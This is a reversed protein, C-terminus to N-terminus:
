RYMEEPTMIEPIDSKHVVPSRNKRYEYIAARIEQIRENSSVHIIYEEAIDVGCAVSLYRNIKLEAFDIEDWMCLLEHMYQHTSCFGNALPKAKCPKTKLGREKEEYLLRAPCLRRPLQPLTVPKYM